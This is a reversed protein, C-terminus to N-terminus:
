RGRRAGADKAQPVEQSSCSVPFRNFRDDHKSTPCLSRAFKGVRSSLSRSQPSTTVPQVGFGAKTRSRSSTQLEALLPRRQLSPSPADKAWRTSELATVSYPCGGTEDSSNGSSETCVSFSTPLTVCLGGRNSSETCFSISPKRRTRDLYLSPSSFHVARM